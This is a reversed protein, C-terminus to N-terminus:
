HEVEDEVEESTPEAITIAFDLVVEFAALFRDRDEQRWTRSRPLERMLGALAPPLGPLGEEDTDKTGRRSTRRKSTKRVPKKDKGTSAPRPGPRRKPAEDVIGAYECLALFLMVMRDRQSVPRYGRFADAVRNADDKAPDAYDFIPAYVGRLTAEFRSKFEDTPAKQLELFQESPEGADNLLELLRLSQLVKPIVSETIGARALVAQDIPTPLGRDRFREITEIITKAPGYPAQGDPHLPM